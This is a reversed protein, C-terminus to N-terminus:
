LYCMYLSKKTLFFWVKFKLDCGSKSTGGTLLIRLPFFENRYKPDTNHFETGILILFESLKDINLSFILFHFGSHAHLNHLSYM